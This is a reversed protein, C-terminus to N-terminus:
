AAYHFGTQQLEPITAVVGPTLVVGEILHNTFEAAMTEHSAHDPNVDRTILRATLEWIANHCALFVVGRDQLSPITNGMPGFVSKPDEYDSLATPAASRVVLTNTKFKDGALSALGYKEWIAQDFLALHASGHTASVALFDDHKFSFVQANISNRMVNLWPGAIDTNNWVQKRSARYAIVEKLAEDDWFDPNSLIMPVTRFDRRRPARNVRAMLESLDRAGSPIVFSDTEARAPAARLVADGIALSGLGILARRRAVDVKMQIDGLKSVRRVVTAKSAGDREHSLAQRRSLGVANPSRNLRKLRDTRREAM